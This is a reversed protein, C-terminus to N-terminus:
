ATGAAALHIRAVAGQGPTSHLSLEGGMLRLTARAMGLGLGFGPRAGSTDARFFRDFVQAQLAAPIGPGNDDVEVAVADPGLAHCRVSVEAGEGAYRIANDILNSLAERILLANGEVWIPAAREAPGDPAAGAEDVGLDIRAKLARPVLEATLEHTLRRLDFRTRAQAAASEPEARALTLLQTVLHASRTASEHVRSLRAQLAPDDFALGAVFLSVTFGIGALAALTLMYNTDGPQITFILVQVIIWAAMGAIYARIKNELGIGRGEQRMYLIVGRGEREIMMMANQLQDGCDCRCSGLVDGTLCESHVRVLVPQGDAVDGKVLALHELKDVDNDFVIATFTGFKSPLPVEVARRVLLETRIRYAVLDAITLDIRGSKLDLFAQDQTAYRVIESQTFTKSAYAEHTTGRQVGIKKGKLGAATPELKAGAKAILRAPTNYYPKSFAIVKQREDTISVSAFIADVKRSQLAPILGDFDQQVMTCQAKMEACYAQLLEIEFGKLKGDPGIESFPPYAGEVGIRLKKWEPAQAHALSAAALLALALLRTKM